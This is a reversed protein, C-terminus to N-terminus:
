EGIAICRIEQLDEYPGSYCLKQSDKDIYPKQQPFYPNALDANLKAFTEESVKQDKSILTRINLLKIKCDLDHLRALYKKLDPGAVNNLVSGILNRISIGDRKYEEPNPNSKVAQEFEEAPKLSLEYIRFYPPFADNISMNPKFLARVLWPIAHGGKAFFEPNKDLDRYTNVMMGFERIMPKYLSRQDQTLPAIAVAQKLAGQNYMDVLLDIDDALMAVIVMKYILSDALELQKKLTNIDNSLVSAATEQNGAAIAQLVSFQSLKNAKTLYQFDAIIETVSPPILSKYDHYSFLKKYRNVLTRHQKLEDALKASNNRLRNICGSESNHCYVDGEPLDLRDKPPYSSESFDEPDGKSRTEADRFLVVRSRGIAIPEAGEVADIGMLFYYAESDQGVNANSLAAWQQATTDLRDDIQLLGVVIGLAVIAIIFYKM